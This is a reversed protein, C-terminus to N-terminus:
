FPGMTSEQSHIIRLYAFYKSKGKKWTIWIAITHIILVGKSTNVHCGRLGSFVSGPWLISLPKREKVPLCTSVCLELSPVLLPVQNEGVTSQQANGDWHNATETHWPVRMGAHQLRMSFPTGDATDGRDVHRTCLDGMCVCLGQTCWQQTLAPLCSAM